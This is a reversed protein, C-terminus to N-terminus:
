GHFEMKSKSFKGKGQKAERRYQKILREMRGRKLNEFFLGSKKEYKCLHGM